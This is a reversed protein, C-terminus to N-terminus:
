NILVHGLGEIVFIICFKVLLCGRVIWRWVKICNMFVALQSVSVALQSCQDLSRVLRSNLM